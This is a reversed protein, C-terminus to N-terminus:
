SKVNEIELKYGPFPVIYGIAAAVLITCTISLKKWALIPKSFFEKPISLLLRYMGQLVSREQDYSGLETAYYKRLIRRTCGIHHSRQIVFGLGLRRKVVRHWVRADPDFVINQGTMKRVRLSFEIDESIPKDRHGESFGANPSFLCGSKFADKKFAMNAGFAGRVIHKEKWGTWATCSILWYFEEPLWKLSDSEWLPYASGTMGIASDNVLTKVISEGWDHFPVADDDIFAIIAGNAHTIGLNRAVSLGPKGENFIVKINPMAKENAYTKIAEYLERSREAVFLTEIHKYTQNIISDLLEYVDNIHETTYSTIVVTLLTDQKTDLM